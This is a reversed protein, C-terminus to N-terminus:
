KRPEESLLAADKAEPLKLEDEIRKKEQEAFIQKSTELEYFVAVDQAYKTMADFFNQKKSYPNPITQEPKEPDPVTEQWGTKIAFAALYREFLAEPVEIPIQM